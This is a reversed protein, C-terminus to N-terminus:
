PNEEESWNATILLCHCPLLSWSVTVLLCVTIVLGHGPSRSWSVTALLGVKGQPDGGGHRHRNRSLIECPGRASGGVARKRDAYGAKTLLAVYVAKAPLWGQRTASRIWGQFTQTDSDLRPSDQTVTAYEAKAPLWSMMTVAAPPSHRAPAFRAACPQWSRGGRRPRGARVSTLSPREPTQIMKVCSSARGGSGDASM